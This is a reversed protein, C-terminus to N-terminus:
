SEATDWFSLGHLSFEVRDGLQPQAGNLAERELTFELGRVNIRVNGQPACHVVEGRVLYDGAAGSPQMGDPQWSQVIKFESIEEYGTQVTISNGARLNDEYGRAPIFIVEGVVLPCGFTGRWGLASTGRVLSVADQDVAIVTIKM